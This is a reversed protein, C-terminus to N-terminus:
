QAHIVPVNYYNLTGRLDHGGGGGSVLTACEDSEAVISGGFEAVAAGFVEPAFLVSPGVLVVRAKASLALLRPLTKNTLSTGTIYVFDMDPLVYECAPDPLDGPWPDRELVNLEGAGSFIQEIRPFHGIVAVKKGAVQDAHLEFTTVGSGNLQEFRAIRHKRNFWAGLAATGLAAVGLDWSKVLGAVESLPRGVLDDRVRTPTEVVGVAVGALGDETRIMSCTSNIAQSVVLEPPVQAILDDYLQWPNM